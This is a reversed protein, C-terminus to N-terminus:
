KNIKQLFSITITKPESIEKQMSNHAHTGPTGLCGHACSLLSALDIHISTFLLFSFIKKFSTSFLFVITRKKKKDSPM